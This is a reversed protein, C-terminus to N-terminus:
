FDIDQSLQQKENHIHIKRLLVVEKLQEYASKLGARDDLLINYYVKRGKFPIFDPTENISDYDLGISNLYSDIEPFRSEDCSTFIVVHCGMSKVERVLDIIDFFIHGVKHYDYLTNDYDVAVIIMGYKNWENILRDICNKDNLYYDM